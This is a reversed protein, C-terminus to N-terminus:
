VKDLYEKQLANVGGETAHAQELIAIRALESVREQEKRLDAIERKVSTCDRLTERAIRCDAIVHEKMGLLRNFAEVFQVRIEEETIHPTQCHPEHKYKDNCRWIIKRNPRNSNWVKPGYYGGCDSCVIKSSFVSGCTNPRNIEKRRAIEAQVADFDDPDIIAQHSNQVYYQPVEGHNLKREKTLFDVTYRKQLLADGKYKENTLISRVTVVQWVQSGGPSLIRDVQLLKAIMSPTKGEMFQRFIRRIIAAEEEVVEPLGDEGKRYGMFHKYPLNVRGDAMRKRVGWTVNESISRSEEQALSSMITILLEGKGDFTYINEKEFYVEVNKDKLKRVTTLSDVTNRAFRSVSKTVILDIKGAVADSVMRNFGDRKRTNTASIGEDAYMGAYIWEPNELILKQYYDVQAALSHLMADKDSSVRAYGAVKTLKLAQTHQIPVRTIIREM